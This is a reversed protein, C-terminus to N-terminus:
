IQLACRAAVPAEFAISRPAAASTLVTTNRQSLKEAAARARRSGLFDRLAIDDRYVGPRYDDLRCKALGDGADRRQPSAQRRCRNDAVVISSLFYTSFFTDHRYARASFGGPM